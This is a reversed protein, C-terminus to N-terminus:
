PTDRQIDAPDDRRVVVWGAEALAALVADAWEEYVACYEHDAIAAALVDRVEHAM